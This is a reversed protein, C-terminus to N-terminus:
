LKADEPLIPIYKLSQMNNASPCLRTLDVLERLTENSIVKDEYFRRYSRTQKLLEKLMIKEKTV